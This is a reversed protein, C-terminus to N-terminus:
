AADYGWGTSNFLFYAIGGEVKLLTGFVYVGIDGAADGGVSPTQDSVVFKGAAITIFKGIDAATPAASWYTTTAPLGIMTSAGIIGTLGGTEIAISAGSEPDTQTTAVDSRSSAVFNVFAAADSATALRARGDTGFMIAAGEWVATGDAPTRMKLLHIKSLDGNLRVITSSSSRQYSM